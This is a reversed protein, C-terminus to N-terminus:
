AAAWASGDWRLRVEFRVSPCCRPDDPLYEYRDVVLLAGDLRPASGDIAAGLQRPGDATAEVVVVNPVTVNGGSALACSLFAVAEEAGDGTVDGYAVIEFLDVIADAGGVAGTAPSLGVGDGTPCNVVYAFSRLDAARISPPPLPTM